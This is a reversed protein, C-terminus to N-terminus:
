KQANDEELVSQIVQELIDVSDKWTPLDVSSGRRNLSAFDYDFGLVSSLVLGYTKEDATYGTRVTESLAMAPIIVPICGAVQAKIGTMCYLEGGRAPHCWIDSTRYVENMTDEDAEGLCIVGPLDVDTVGYTIILTADPHERYVEPWAKLLIDLGRDPSSAYFCQKPIKKAPYIKEPDYGHPLVFTRNNVPINDVAWQSPWIVGLYASLDLESANTENTLYLTPEKPAIESSKVNICIDGGGSYSNRTDNDYITVIHGRKRLEKAWEVVSEESGGLRKDNPKWGGAVKNVLFNIRVAIGGEKNM